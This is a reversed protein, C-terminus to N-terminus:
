SFINLCYFLLPPLYVFFIGLFDLFLLAGGMRKTRGSGVDNSSFSAAIDQSPMAARCGRGM